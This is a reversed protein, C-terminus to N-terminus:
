VYYDDKRLDCRRNKKQPLLELLRWLYIWWQNWLL